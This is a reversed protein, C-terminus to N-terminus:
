EDVIEEVKNEENVNDDHKDHLPEAVTEHLNDDLTEDITQKLDQDVTEQVFLTKSFALLSKVDRLGTHQTVVGEPTVGYITPFGKLDDRRVLSPSINGDARIWSVSPEMSAAQVFAGMMTRCHGCWPAHVLIVKPVGSVSISAVAESDNQVDTVFPSKEIQPQQPIPKQGEVYSNNKNLYKNIAYYGVLVVTVAFFIGMFFTTRDIFVDKTM